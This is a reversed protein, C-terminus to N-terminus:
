LCLFLYKEIFLALSWELELILAITLAKNCCNADFDGGRYEGDFDDDGDEEKGGGDNSSLSSAKCTATCIWRREGRESGM